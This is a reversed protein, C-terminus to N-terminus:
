PRVRGGSPVGYRAVFLWEMAADAITPAKSPIGPVMGGTPHESLEVGAPVAAALPEPRRAPPLPSAPAEPPLPFSPLPSVMTVLTEAGAAAEGVPETKDESERVHALNYVLAILYVSM